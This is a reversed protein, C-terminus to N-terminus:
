LAEGFIEVAHAELHDAIQPFTLGRVDNLKMLVNRYPLGYVGKHDESMWLSYHHDYIGRGEVVQKHIPFGAAIAVEIAVGEACYCEGLEDVKCLRGKTQRFQGSRLASVLGRRMTSRDPLPPKVETESM